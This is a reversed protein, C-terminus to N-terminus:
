QTSMCCSGIWGIASPCLRNRSTRASIAFLLRVFYSPLPAPWGHSSFPPIAPRALARCRNRLASKKRNAYCQTVNIPMPAATVRRGRGCWRAYPDTCPPELHNRWCEAVLSPIRPPNETGTMAGSPEARERGAERAAGTLASSFDLEIQTNQQKDDKLSM